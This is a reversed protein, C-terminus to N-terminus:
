RLLDFSITFLTSDSRQIVQFAGYRYIIAYGMILIGQSFGYLLGM